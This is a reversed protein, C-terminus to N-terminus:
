VSTRPFTVDQHWRLLFKNDIFRTLVGSGAGADTDSTDGSSGKKDHHVLIISCDTKSVVNLLGRLFPLWTTTDNESGELLCYIPDLIVVKIKNELVTNELWTLLGELSLIDEKNALSEKCNKVFLNQEVLELSTQHLENEKVDLKEFNLNFPNQDLTSHFREQLWRSQLELDLLLVKHPTPIKLTCFNVGSAIHCALKMAVQSKGIKPPAILACISGSHLLGEIIVESEKYEKKLFDGLSIPPSIPGPSDIESQILEEPIVTMSQAQNNM